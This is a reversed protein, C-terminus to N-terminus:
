QKQIKPCILEKTMEEDTLDKDVDVIVVKARADELVVATTAKNVSKSTQDLFFQERDWDKVVKRASAASDVEILIFCNMSRKCHTIEM